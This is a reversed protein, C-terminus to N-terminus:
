ATRWLPSDSSGDRQAIPAPAARPVPAARAPAATVCDAALRPADAALRPAACWLCVCLARRDAQRRRRSDGPRALPRGLPTEDRRPGPRRSRNGGGRGVPARAGTGRSARWGPLRDPAIVRHSFRSASVVALSSRPLGWALLSRSPRYFCSGQWAAAASSGRCVLGASRIVSRGVTM